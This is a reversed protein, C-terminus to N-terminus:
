RNRKRHQDANPCTAWHSKFRSTKPPDTLPESLRVRPAGNETTGDVVWCGDESPDADMPTSKDHITVAWWIAARCSKCPGLRARGRALWAEVATNLTRASREIQELTDGYGVRISFRPDPSCALFQRKEGLLAVNVPGSVIRDFTKQVMELSVQPTTNKTLM